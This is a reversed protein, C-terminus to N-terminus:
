AMSASSRNLGSCGIRQEIFLMAVVVLEDPDRVGRGFAVRFILKVLADWEADRLPVLMYIETNERQPSPTLQTRRIWLKSHLSGDGGLFSAVRRAARESGHDEAPHYVNIRELLILRADPGDFALEAVDVLIERFM